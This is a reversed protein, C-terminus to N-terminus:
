FKPYCSPAQVVQIIDKYVPQTPFDAAGEGGVAVVVGCPVNGRDVSSSPSSAGWGGKMDLGHEAAVCRQRMRHAWGEVISDSYM